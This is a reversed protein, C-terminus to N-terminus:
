AQLPPAAGNPQGLRHYASVSYAEHRARLIPDDSLEIGDAVRTPDFVEIHDGQEPDDVVTSLELRGAEVLKREDPWAETPDEIADGEEAVQFHLIFVAPGEGLREGLEQVLYDRGREKAEDDPIRQEGAEPLWRYRIWTEGGEADVLKFAHPSYYPITAFSAPPEAGLTQQIASGAEPHAGLYAGLKEMDPEGTEPDPRRAELLELFDEPTRTLFVTNATALIDAEGEGGPGNPRFKVALGRGARTADHSNPKGPANSFRALVPIEEGSFILARSFSKAEGTATFTGECWTGKAHLVRTHPHLGDVIAAADVLREYFDGESM